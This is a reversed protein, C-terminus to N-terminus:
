LRHLWQGQTKLWCRYSHRLTATFDPAEGNQCATTWTRLLGEATFLTMQTDDTIEYLGNEGPVLDVIGNVGFPKIIEAMTYFEVPWGLADGVAGGLLCGTFYERKNRDMSRGLKFAM